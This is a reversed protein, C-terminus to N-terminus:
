NEYKRSLINHSYRPFNCIVKVKMEVISLFQMLKRLQATLKFICRNHEIKRKKGNKPAITMHQCSHKILQLQCDLFLIAVLEFM